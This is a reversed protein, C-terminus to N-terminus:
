GGMTPPISVDYKRTGLQRIGCKTLRYWAASRPMNTARAVESISAGMQLLPIAVLKFEDMSMYQQRM